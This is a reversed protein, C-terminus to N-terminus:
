TCGSEVTEAEPVELIKEVVFERVDQDTNWIRTQRLMEPRVWFQNSASINTRHSWLSIPSGTSM